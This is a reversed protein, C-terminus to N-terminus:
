FEYNFIWWWQGNVLGVMSWAAPKVGIFFLLRMKPIRQPARMALAMKALRPPSLDVLADVEVPFSRLRFIAWLWGVLWGTWLPISYKASLSFAREPPFIFQVTKGLPCSPDSVSYRSFSWDPLRAMALVLAAGTALKTGLIFTKEM